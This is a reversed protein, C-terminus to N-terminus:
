NNESSHKVTYRCYQVQATFVLMQLVRMFVRLLWNNHNTNVNWSDELSIKKGM